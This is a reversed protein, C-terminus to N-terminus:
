RSGSSFNNGAAHARHPNTLHPLPSNPLPPKHCLISMPLSLYSLALLSFRFSHKPIKRAIAHYDYACSGASLLNMDLSHLLTASESMANRLQVESNKEHM